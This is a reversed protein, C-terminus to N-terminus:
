RILKARVIDLYVRDGFSHQYVREHTGTQHGMLKATEWTDLGRYKAERAYSHRLDYPTIGWRSYRKGNEKRRFMATVKRGLYTNSCNPEDWDQPGISKIWASPMKEVRLDWEGDLWLPIVSRAGEKASRRVVIEPYRSLDLGFIEHDRLGYAALMGFVWRHEEVGISNYIEIIRDRSPLSRKKQPRVRTVSEISIDLGALRALWKAVTVYHERHSGLTKKDPVWQELLGATMPKDMPLSRLVSWYGSKWTEYAAPTHSRKAWFEEELQEVFDGVTERPREELWDAWSFENLMLQAGMKAALKEAKAIAEITTPMALPIRQQAPIVGDRISRPPLTARLNLWGESGRSEIRVRFRAAKLRGNAADIAAKLDEGSRPRAM